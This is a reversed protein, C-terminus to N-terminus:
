RQSVEFVQGFSGEGMKRNVSVVTDPSLAGPLKDITSTAAYIRTPEKGRGGSGRRHPLLALHSGAVRRPLPGTRPARLAAVPAPCSKPATRSLASFKSVTLKVAMNGKVQDTVEVHIGGSRRPAIGDCNCAPSPVQAHRPACSVRCM